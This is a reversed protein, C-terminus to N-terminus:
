TSDLAYVIFGHHRAMQDYLSRALRNNEHTQWYVRCAGATLAARQVSNILARALGQKRASPETFLDQLYCVPEIRTTSRHYLFHVIGLLKRDVEAVHAYVPELPNFFRDWTMATVSEPLMTEGSRGYFANYGTWLPLWADYDERRISRINIPLQKM